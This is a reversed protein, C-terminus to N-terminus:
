ETEWEIKVVEKPNVIVFDYEWETGNWSDYYGNLRFYIVEKTENDKLSYVVWTTEGAGEYGGFDEECALTYKGDTFSGRFADQFADGDFDKIYEENEPSFWRNEKAKEIVMEPVIEKILKVKEEKTM